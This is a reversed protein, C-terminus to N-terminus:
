KRRRYIFYILGGGIVAAPIIFILIVGWFNAQTESVTLVAESLEVGAIEPLSSTFSGQMWNFMYFFLYFNGGNTGNVFNDALLQSSGIWVLKGDGAEAAAALNYQSKEDSDTTYAKSSTTMLATTTVGNAGVLEIGHAYPVLVSMRSSSSSYSVYGSTADHESNIDAFIYQPARSYYMSSDGESVTGSKAALGFTKTFANLNTYSDCGVATILIVNGGDKIFATLKEAEGASFDNGPNNIIIVDADAPISDDDLAINITDYQIGSYTFLNATVTDTLEEENHGELLYVMPVKAATVYELAGTIQNDGDFYETVEGFYYSMYDGYYQAYYQYESYGIKGSNASYFYYMDGYDVSKYRKESVAIVSYNSISDANYKSLFSSDELPDVVKIKIHKSLDEYRELFTRMKSDESGSQCIYYLTVDETIESVFDRSTESLSYMKNSSTDIATYKSPIAAAILNIVILAALVIVTIILTYTGMKGAKGFAPLANINKKM